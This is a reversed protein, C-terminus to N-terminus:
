LRHIQGFMSFDPVQSKKDAIVNSFVVSVIKEPNVAMSLRLDSKLLHIQKYYVPNRVRAITNKAGMHKALLCCLMNLEHQPNRQNEQKLHNQRYEKHFAKNQLMLFVTRLGDQM